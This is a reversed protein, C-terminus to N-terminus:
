PTSAGSHTSGMFVACENGRSPSLILRDFYNTIFELNGLHVPEDLYFGGCVLCRGDATIAISSTSVM